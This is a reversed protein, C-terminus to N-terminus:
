KIPPKIALAACNTCRPWHLITFPQETVLFQCDFIHIVQVPRQPSKPVVSELPPASAKPAEGSPALAHVLSAVAAGLAGAVTLPLWKKAPKTPTAPTPAIDTQTPYEM